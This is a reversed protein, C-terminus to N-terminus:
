RTQREPHTPPSGTGTFPADEEIEQAWALAAAALEILYRMRAGGSANRAKDACTAVYDDWCGARNFLSSPGVPFERPWGLLDDTETQAVLERILRKARGTDRPM